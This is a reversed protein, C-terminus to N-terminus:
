SEKGVRGDSIKNQQTRLNVTRIGDVLGALLSTNLNRTETIVFSKGDSSVATHAEDFNFARGLGYTGRFM